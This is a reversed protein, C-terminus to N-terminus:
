SRLKTLGDCDTKYSCRPQALRLGVTPLRDHYDAFPFGSIGVSFAAVNASGPLREKTEHRLGGWGVDASALPFFLLGVM